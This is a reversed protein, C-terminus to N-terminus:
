QSYSTRFVYFRCSERRTFLEELTKHPRQAPAQIEYRTILNEELAFKPSQVLAVMSAFVVGNSCTYPRM